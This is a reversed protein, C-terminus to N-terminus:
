VIKWRAIERLIFVPNPETRIEYCLHDCIRVGVKETTRHAAILSRSEWAELSNRSPESSNFSNDPSTPARLLFIRHKAKERLPHIVVSVGTDPM